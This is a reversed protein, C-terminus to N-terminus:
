GAGNCGISVPHGKGLKRSPLMHAPIADPIGGTGQSPPLLNLRGAWALSTAAPYPLEVDGLKPPSTRQDENSYSLPSFCRGQTVECEM